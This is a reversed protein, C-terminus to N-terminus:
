QGRSLSYFFPIMLIIFRVVRPKSVETAISQELMEKACRSTTSWSPAAM